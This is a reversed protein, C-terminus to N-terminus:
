KAMADKGKALAAKAEELSHEMCDKFEIVAEVKSSPQQPEFGMRPHRGTDLM